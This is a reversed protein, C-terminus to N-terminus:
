PCNFGTPIAPGPLCDRQWGPGRSIVRWWYAVGGPLGPVNEVDEASETIGRRGQGKMRIYAGHGDAMVMNFRWDEGHWGGVTFNTGANYPPPMYGWTWGYFGCNELYHITRGPNPVAELSRLYVTFSAMPGMGGECIHPVLAPYSTGFYDYATRGSRSFHIWPGLTARTPAGTFGTDSPCRYLTLNLSKDVPVCHPPVQKQPPVVRCEPAVLADMHYLFRNLPRTFSGVGAEVNYLAVDSQVASGSKGGYQYSGVIVGSRVGYRRHLPVAHHGPDESAYEATAAGITRLNNLCVQRKASEGASDLVSLALTGAVGLVAVCATLEVLTLGPSRRHHHTKPPSPKCLM